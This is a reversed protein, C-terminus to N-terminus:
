KASDHSKIGYLLTKYIDISTFNTFTNKKNLLITKFKTIYEIKAKLIENKIENMVFGSTLTKSPHM